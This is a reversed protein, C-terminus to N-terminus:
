LYKKLDYHAIEQIEKVIRKAKADEFGIDKRDMSSPFKVIWPEDNM